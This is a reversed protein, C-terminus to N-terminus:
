APTKLSLLAQYARNLHGEVVEYDSADNGEDEIDCVDDGLKNLIALIAARMRDVEENVPDEFRADNAGRLSEQVHDFLADAEESQPNLEPM